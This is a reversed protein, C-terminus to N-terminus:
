MQSFGFSNGLATFTHYSSIPAKLSMYNIRDRGPATVTEDSCDIRPATSCLGKASMFGLARTTQTICESTDFGQTCAVCMAYYHDHKSVDDCIDTRAENCKEEDNFISYESEECDCIPELTTAISKSVKYDYVRCTRVHVTVENLYGAIGNKVSHVQENVGDFVKYTFGDPGLYRLNPKYIVVREDRLYNESAHDGLTYDAFEPPVGFNDTCHRYGDVGSRVGNMGSTDVGNCYGMYRSGGERVVLEGNETIDFLERWDGYSHTSYSRSKYLKGYKPLSTVEASLDQYYSHTIGVIDTIVLVADSITGYAGGYGFHNNGHALQGSQTLHVTWRGDVSLQNFEHMFPMTSQYPRTVPAEAVPSTSRYSSFTNLKEEYVEVEALSLSGYGYRQVRVYTANVAAPLATECVDTASTYFQKFVALKLSEELDSPPPETLDFIMVWFPTLWQNDGATTSSETTATGNVTVGMGYEDINSVEHWFGARTTTVDYYFQSEVINETENIGGNKVTGGIWTVNEVTVTPSSVQVSLFEIHYLYGYGEMGDSGCGGPHDVGCLQLMSMTVDVEGIGELASIKAKVQEASSGFQLYNTTRASSPNNVDFGVIHLCFRGKPYDDYGKMLVRIIPFVFSQPKRPYVNITAVKSDVPLLVQWWADVENDTETVSYHSVLPDTNGDTAYKAPQLTSSQQPAGLLAINVLQTDSFLYTYGMGTDIDIWTENNGLRSRPYSRGLEFAKGRDHLVNDFVVAKKGLHELEVKLTSVDTHYLSRLILEIKRPYRFKWQKVLQGNVLEYDTPDRLEV